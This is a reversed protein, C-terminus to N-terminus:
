VPQVSPGVYKAGGFGLMPFGIVPLLLMLVAFGASKGFSKALDFTMVVPLVINLCPVFAACIGWWQPRGVIEALVIFNYFPCVASWWPRGAKTFIRIQAVIVVLMALVFAAVLLPVVVAAVLLYVDGDGGEGIHDFDDAQALLWTLATM